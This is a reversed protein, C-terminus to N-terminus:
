VVPTSAITGPIPVTSVVQSQAQIPGSLDYVETPVYTDPRRDHLARQMRKATASTIVLYGCQNCKSAPVNRILVPQRKVVQAVDFHGKSFSTGLCEPCKM